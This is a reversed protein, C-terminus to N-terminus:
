ELDSNLFRKLFDPTDFTSNTHAVNRHYIKQLKKKEKQLDFFAANLFPVAASLLASSLERDSCRRALKQLNVFM